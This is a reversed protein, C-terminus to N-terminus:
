QLDVIQPCSLLFYHFFCRSMSMCALYEAKEAPTVLGTTPPAIFLTAGPELLVADLVRLCLGVHAASLVM